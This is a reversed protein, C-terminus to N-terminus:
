RQDKKQSFHENRLPSHRPDLSHFFECIEIIKKNGRGNFVNDRVKCFDKAYKRKEGWGEFAAWRVRENDFLYQSFLGIFLAKEQKGFQWHFRRDIWGADLAHEWVNIAKDETAIPRERMGAMDGVFTLRKKTAGDHTTAPVVNVPVFENGSKVVETAGELLIDIERHSCGRRRYIAERIYQPFWEQIIKHVDMRQRLFNYDVDALAQETASNIFLPFVYKCNTLNRDARDYSISLNKMYSEFAEVTYTFKSDALIIQTDEYYEDYTKQKPCPSSKVKQLICLARIDHCERESFVQEKFVAAIENVWPCKEDRGHPCNGCTDM